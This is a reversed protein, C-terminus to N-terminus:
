TWPWLDRVNTQSLNNFGERVICHKRIRISRSVYRLATDSSFGTDVKLLFSFKKKDIEPKSVDIKTITTILSVTTAVRMYIDQEM